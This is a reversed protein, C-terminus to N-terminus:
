IRQQVVTKGKVLYNPKVSFYIHQKTNKYLVLFRTTDNWQLIQLDSFYFVPVSLYAKNHLSYFYWASIHQISSTQFAHIPSLRRMLRKSVDENHM